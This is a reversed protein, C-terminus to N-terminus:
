SSATPAKPIPPNAPRLFAVIEQLAQHLSSALDDASLPPQRHRVEEVDHETLIAAVLRAKQFRARLQQCLYRAHMFGYPPVSSICAVRAEKRNEEGLGNVTLANVPLGQAEIGRKKLLQALMLAAIEDAEDRAPVCLVQPPRNSTVTSPKTHPPCGNRPKASDNGAVLDDAREALDEILMRTNRFLFQQRSENLKGRHREEEALSLAPIIVTDYLEELSRGKLFEEAVETAEDLDMALMRQYFRTAPTLVEEDSLMVSLFELKPVYRGLVVVCVTLPTALLLGVPGWLWTWFVAAVLIAIPSIGTSTGYLLPEVLNYMLVDLGVYIGLIIPVKVWGPEVAFAIAAAMLAAIWIGLYPIYRLLAALIGWLLPNPVGIFALALGTALGYAANVFFQAILYRSVRHAAEDFLQTAVNVRGRGALRILRDRLDERQVMIFIVFVIVVGAMLLVNVISSLIKQIVQLPSFPPRHIEVPVTHQENPQSGPPAPTFGETVNHLIHTVRNVLSGGSTRISEFKKRINQEYGPLKHALDALQSALVTGIIGLIIFTFLVVLTTALGRGLGWHRLRIVLPGLMFALLVALALPIFVVRALYLVAVVIVVTLLTILGTNNRAGNGTGNSV